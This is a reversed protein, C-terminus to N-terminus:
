YNDKGVFDGTVFLIIDKGILLNRNEWVNQYVGDFSLHDNNLVENITNYNSNIRKGINHLLYM